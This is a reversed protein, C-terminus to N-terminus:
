ARLEVRYPGFERTIRVPDGSVPALTEFDVNKEVRSRFVERGDRHLIFYLDPTREGPSDASMIDAVAILVHAAGNDDLDAKGLHEDVLADRDGATVTWGAGTIPKGTEDEFRVVACFLGSTAGNM